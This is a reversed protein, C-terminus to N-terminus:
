APVNFDNESRLVILTPALGEWVLRLASVSLSLFLSFVQLHAPLLSEGAQPWPPTINFWQLLDSTTGALSALCFDLCLRLCASGRHRDVGLAM